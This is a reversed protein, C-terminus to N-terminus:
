QFSKRKSRLIQQSKQHRKLQKQCVALTSNGISEWHVVKHYTEWHSYKHRRWKDSTWQLNWGMRNSFTSLSFSDKPDKRRFNKAFTVRAFLRASFWGICSFLFSNFLWALLSSYITEILHRARFLRFIFLFNTLTPSNSPMCVGDNGIFVCVFM